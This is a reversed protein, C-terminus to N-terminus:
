TGKTKHSERTGEVRGKWKSHDVGGRLDGWRESMKESGRM